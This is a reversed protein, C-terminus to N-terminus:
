TILCCFMPVEGGSRSPGSPRSLGAFISLRVRVFRSMAILLNAKTIDETM